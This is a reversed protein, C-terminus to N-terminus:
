DFDCSPNGHVQETLGVNRDLTRLAFLLDLLAQGVKLTLLAHSTGTPGLYCEGTSSEIGGPFERCIDRLLYLFESLSNRRSAIENVEELYANLASADVHMEVTSASM